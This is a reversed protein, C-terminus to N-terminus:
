YACRKQLLASDLPHNRLIDAIRESAHGDGYPNTSKLTSRFAPDLAHRIGSVIQDTDYGVDIVNGARLRGNQRTGVNVVPLRFSPAEILGSSSNGVMAAVIRLLSLYTKQSLNKVLRVHPRSQAYAEIARIIEQGGADSNPYTIVTQLHFSDLALLLNAIQRPTEHSETTVPHFTVLLIPQDLDLSLHHAIEERPLLTSKHIYDVGPAGVVHIRWPEEGMRMLRDAADATAALHIHAMKSIAHRVSEDITGSVEGGHIHAVPLNMHAAAITAALMEGRDGLVLIIDPALASFAQAFGLIGLGISRAMSAGTDGSLLTEVKAAIPFGDREIEHITSGFLPSLHMGCAIVAPELDTSDRLAELVYYYLGYDARTGTIM